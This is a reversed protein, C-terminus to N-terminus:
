QGSRQSKLYAYIFRDIDGDFVHEVSGTEEGTRHDKM